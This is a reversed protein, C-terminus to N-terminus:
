PTGVVKSRGLVVQWLDAPLGLEQLLARAWLSSLATQNDPKHVVANGALLAPIVDM